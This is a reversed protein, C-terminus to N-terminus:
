KQSGEQSSQNPKMQSLHRQDRLHGKTDRNVKRRSNGDLWFRQFPSRSEHRNEPDGKVKEETLYRQM